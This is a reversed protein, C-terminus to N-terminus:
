LYEEEIIRQARLLTAAEAEAENDFFTTEPIFQNETYVGNQQFGISFDDAMFRGAQPHPTGVIGNTFSIRYGKYDRTKM